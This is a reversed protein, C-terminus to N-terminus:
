AKMGLQEVYGKGKVAKEQAIKMTGQYEFGYMFGDGIIPMPETTRVAEYVFENNIDKQKGIWRNPVRCNRKTCNEFVDYELIRCQYNKMFINPQNRLRIVGANKLEFGLPAETWLSIAYGGDPLELVEYRFVKVPLRIPLLNKGWGHDHLAPVNISGARHKWEWDIKADGFGTYHCYIGRAYAWWQFDPQSSIEMDISLNNEPQNYKIKYDPWEGEFLLREGLKFFVRDKEYKLDRSISYYKKRAVHRDKAQLCFQLDFADNPSLDKLSEPRDFPVGTPGLLINLNLYHFPSDEPFVIIVTRLDWPFDPYRTTEQFHDPREHPAKGARDVVATLPKLARSFFNVM